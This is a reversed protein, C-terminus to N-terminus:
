SGQPMMQAIQQPRIAQTIQPQQPGQPPVQQPGQQQPQPITSLAAFDVQSLGSFELVDNFAAGMGPIQLTQQFAVPNTFAFQLVSMVKDSLNALNKQKGAINIGMKISVDAFDEALVELLHKNGHKQFSLLFEQKLQEADRPMKGAIVDMDREKSAYCEAMQDSLWKMEEITLTAIFKPGRLIEKAIDEIIWDRYIEEIFKARQGRRRDHIGRGQAVNREQGRFTTGSPPEKGLLPDFAAGAFQAQEHLTNISSEYLQINAVSITPVQYIRKGEEITTIELTEMDQIKNKQTYAPDDTYLPVKSGAELMANKHIELFNTWIQPHLLAEGVGRGLARGYIEKTVLFKFNEDVDKKRYLCVGVDHSKEDKYFARIQVQEIWDKFNGNDKLYDEPMTGRVIYVEIQKGTSKNKKGGLSPSEKETTALAILDEISVTAGNSEKGWGVKSMKRLKEPSFTYKFGVPAGLMNGQDCFAISNLPVVVPRDGPVRQVLAGGYELDSETIEDFLQDLNYKKVYVESHYKKVLFSLFRGYKEEIFFEVDKVEIDESWFCLQLIPEMINKFARMWNNQGSFFVGNKLHFILQVHNRFNWYWNDGVTVEDTEFASEQEKIYEYITSM